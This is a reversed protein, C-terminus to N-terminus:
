DPDLFIAQPLVPAGLRNDTFFVPMAFATFLITVKQHVSYFIFEQRQSDAILRCKDWFWKM